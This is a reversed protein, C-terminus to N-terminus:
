SFTITINTFLLNVPTNNVINQKTNPLTIACDLRNQENEDPTYTIAYTTGETESSDIYGEVGRGFCKEYTIAITASDRVCFPLDLTFFLTSSANSVFGTTNIRSFTISNGCYVQRGRQFVASSNFDNPYIGIHSFLDASANIVSNVASFLTTYTETKDGTYAVTPNLYLYCATFRFAMQANETFENQRHITISCPDLRLHSNRAFLCGQIGQEGKFEISNIIRGICDYLYVQYYEARGSATSNDTFSCDQINITCGHFAIPVLFDVYKALVSCHEFYFSGYDANIKLKRNAAGELHVRASYFRASTGTRKFHITPSGNYAFFHPCAQTIVFIDNSFEYTDNGMLYINYEACRDANVIELLKDVTKIPHAADNGISTGTYDGINADNGGTASIYVNLSRGFNGRKQTDSFGNIESLAVKKTENANVIPLYDNTTLYSRDVANLESIRKDM